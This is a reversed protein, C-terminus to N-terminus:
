SSSIRKSFKLQTKMVYLSFTSVKFIMRQVERMFDLDSVKGVYSLAEEISIDVLQVSGM